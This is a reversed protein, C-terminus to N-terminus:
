HEPIGFLQRMVESESDSTATTISEIALRELAPGDLDAGNRFVVLLEETNDDAAIRNVRLQGDTVCEHVLMLEGIRQRQEAYRDKGEAKFTLAIPEMGSKCESKRDGLKDEDLHKSWLCHPCHNRNQTGIHENIPAWDSCHSCTFGGQHEERHRTQDIHKKRKRSLDIEDLEHLKFKKERAM